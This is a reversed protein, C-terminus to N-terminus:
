GDFPEKGPQGEPERGEWLLAAARYEIVARECLYVAREEWCGRREFAEARAEAEFAQGRAEAARAKDSRSVRFTREPM